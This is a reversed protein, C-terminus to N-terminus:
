DQRVIWTRIDTGATFRTLLDRGRELGAELGVEGSFGMIVMLAQRTQTTIPARESDSTPSGFPGAQDALLPLNELNIEGKGIGKYTEGTRGRRFVIPPQLRACDYSGLPHHTELSLLNNIDVLTNVRYLGKGQAIRRLLAEASGRYRGPDKGCSKYASRQAAVEPLGAIQGVDRKALAAIRQEIERWLSEDQGAVSVTAALCGLALTPAQIRWERDLHIIM